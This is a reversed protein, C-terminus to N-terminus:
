RHQRQGQRLNRVVHHLRARQLVRRDQQHHQRRGGQAPRVQQGAARVPHALRREDAGELGPGAEVQAGCRVDGGADRRVRHVRGGGGQLVRADHQRVEGPRCCM